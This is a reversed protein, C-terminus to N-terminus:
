SGTESARLYIYHICYLMGVLFVCLYKYLTYKSTVFCEPYPPCHYYFTARNCAVREAVADQIFDCVYCSCIMQRGKFIGRALLPFTSFIRVLTQASYQLLESRM